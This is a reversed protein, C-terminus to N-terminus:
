RIEVMYEKASPIWRIGVVIEEGEADGFTAIMSEVRWGTRIATDTMDRLMQALADLASPGAYALGRRDTTTM